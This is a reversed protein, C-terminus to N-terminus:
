RTKTNQNLLNFAMNDISLKVLLDIVKKTNLYM